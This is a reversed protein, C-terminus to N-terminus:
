VRLAVQDQWTIKRKGTRNAGNGINRCASLKMDNLQEDSGGRILSRKSEEVRWPEANCQLEEEERSIQNLDFVPTMNQPNAEKVGYIREKQNLDLVPPSHRLAPEKVRFTKLKQNLDFVPVPNRLTAEKGDYLKGKQNLDLGLAPHALAAEKRSCNKKTTVKKRQVSNQESATRSSQNAILYRQRRRLFRVEDLLTMKKQKTMQLKRKRAETDQYLEDYDQLLTRHRFRTRSDEYVPYPPPKEMSAAAAAVVVGKM